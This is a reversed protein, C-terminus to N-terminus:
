FIFKLALQIQREASKTQVRGFSGSTPNTNPNNWNPHNPFNFIECRFQFRTTETVPFNKRIGLTWTQFGPGRLINRGANGFTGKAPESFVSPDFWFNQDANSESFAREGRPIIPNGNVDWPQNGNGPGVGAVDKSRWVSLPAGSQFQTVGSLEWGGLVKGFASTNNKLFPLEYIYNIILIHPRDNSSIARYGHDDYANFLVDRWSSATDINKSWTYSLGFGLGSTFRREVQLQFGHYHASGTNESLRVIGMGHYPRLADPNVGPNAQLTGPLLSNINRERTIYYGRRGVYAAEVTIAGPIERQIAFNWNWATPLKYIPDQATMMFPFERKTGGIGSPDDAFGYTVGVMEQIPPNGGLLVSGLPGTRNHFMGAGTRIATKDNVKIAIGLRPAFVNKHTKSFGRPLGHFLRDFEPNSAADVRGIAAKPWGDGPLVVGNYRDGSLIYGGKPDVVARNAPDYYDPEFSAINNWLSYWRPWLQYRVGYEVTVSPVVKWSDQIFADFGTARYPTYARRSIEAYTDFVGLAANAIALGTAMPHGSDKFTFKGNQNNSAGPVSAQVNIQDRDNEGSREIFVGFKITHDGLIKTVKDSWTFIPGTSSAPYPGGDMTSFNSIAITPIKDDVDKTGPYIYPYNIGFKTRSMYEIPMFVRDVNASFSLENILTPSFTSTLSIISTRNPRDFIRRVRDFTGRFPEKQHFEFFTARMSINHKNSLYYDVKVTSKRTDRPEAGASIWNSTGLQFGPTPLPYTNLLGIGNPSLRSSPIINDPFPAGSDPDKVTRVKNFYPNSPNLLESFDGTRMAASPVTATHTQYRRWRIWEQSWFFFAKDRNTNFKGPIYVPGGIAYGFQNFRFPAPGSSIEPDGSRNRTWSNADLKNNRFFEWLSGHFEKGGSKTVFRIQGGSSRGYEASYDATLVQIEQVTDVNMTGLMAANARTRVAIAGDITVLNEERRSGNISYNGTTLSDPNFASISGGQVGPKLLALLIPNRGMLTMDAIQRAEIVRGVQATESQVQSTSAVVEVSETVAGLELTIDATAVSAADVKIRSQTFKKFGTLELEVTYYGPALNTARYYGDNGAVVDISQGTAENTVTLSAGVVAAGTSDTVFGTIQGRDLQAMAASGLLLLAVLATIYPSFRRM